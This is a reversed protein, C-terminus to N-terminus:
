LYAPFSWSNAQLDFPPIYLSHLEPSFYSAYELYNTNMMQRLQENAGTSQAAFETPDDDPETEAESEETEETTEAEIEEEAPPVAPTEEPPTINKKDTKKKTM